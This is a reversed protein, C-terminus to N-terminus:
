WREPFFCSGTPFSPFGVGALILTASARLLYRLFSVTPALRLGGVMEFGPRSFGPRLSPFLGESSVQHILRNM